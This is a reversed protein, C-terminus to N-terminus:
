GGALAAKAPMEEAQSALFVMFAMTEEENELDLARFRQVIKRCKLAHQQEAPAKVPVQKKQEIMDLVEQARQLVEPSLGAKRACELGFSKSACGPVLQYLYAISSACEFESDQPLVRLHSVQLHEEEESVLGLRFIETFHTAVLVKPGQRWRCFHEIAAGLLAVGDAARTGQGFEDLLVLSSRTAHKLALSLQSLDLAFSSIQATATECSQIRSFIFDCLGLQAEEAPVFSGIHALYTILGVQKLYVSKGSLNAGTIVQVRYSRKEELGLETSNAVFGHAAKPATAEVLPHRGKVIHLRGADEVLKPRVWNWQLAAAAFAMLVDVEALLESASRLRSELARLRELLQMLIELEVGRADVVLDGVECDLRRALDCKYFLRGYGAFQFHWDEAPLPVADRLADLSEEGTPNPLSAHFGLQPFYHFVISESRNKLRRRELGAMKSLHPELQAYQRRLDDLKPDIGSQVHVLSADLDGEAPSPRREWDVVRQLVREAASIDGMLGKGATFAAVPQDCLRSAKQLIELATSMHGLSTVLSRWDVMNDFNYCRHMRSLLKPLEQTMRLERHLQRVLEAGSGQLLAVLQQVGEQRQELLERRRSPQRLWRRLQKQGGTSAVLPELLSYVSLGKNSVRMLLNQQEQFVQLAMMTQADIFVTDDPSFLRIDQVSPGHNQLEGLLAGNQELFRLLGGGARLMQENDNLAAFLSRPNHNGGQALSQWVEGLRRRAGEAGFDSAAAPAAGPASGKGTAVNFAESKPASPARRRSPSTQCLMEEPPEKRVEPCGRSNSGSVEKEARPFGGSGRGSGRGTRWSEDSPRPRVSARDVHQFEPDTVESLWLTRRPADLDVYALGLPTSGRTTCLAFLVSVAEMQEDVTSRGGGLASLPDCSGLGLLIMSCCGIRLADAKERLEVLITQERAGNRLEHTARGAQNKAIHKLTPEPVDLAVYNKKDTVCPNVAHHQTLLGCTTLALKEETGPGFNQWYEGFVGHSDAPNLEGVTFGRKAACVAIAHMDQDMLLVPVNGEYGEGFVKEYFDYTDNEYFIPLSLVVLCIHKFTEEELVKRVAMASLQRVSHGIGIADGAFVGLGLGVEVVVRIGLDDQARLRLRCMKKMDFLTKTVNLQATKGSLEFDRGHKVSPYGDEDFIYVEKWNKIYHTLDVHDHVRSAFDIGCVSVLWIRTLVEDQVERPIVRGDFRMIVPNNSCRIAFKMKWAEEGAESKGQLSQSVLDKGEEGQYIDAAYYTRFSSQWQKVEKVSAKFSCPLGDQGVGKYVLEKEEPQEHLPTPLEFAKVGQVFYKHALPKMGVEDMMFDEMALTQPICKGGMTRKDMEPLTKLQQMLEELERTPSSVGLFLRCRPPAGQEVPPLAMHEPFDEPPEVESLDWDKEQFKLLEEVLWSPDTRSPLSLEDLDDIFGAASFLWDCGRTAILSKGPEENCSLTRARVDWPAQVIKQLVSLMSELAKRREAEPVACLERLGVLAEVQFRLGNSLDKVTRCFAAQGSGDSFLWRVFEGYQIKGDRNADAHPTAWRDATPDAKPAGREPGFAGSTPAVGAAAVSRPEIRAERLIQDLREDTWTLDDLAELVRGLEQGILFCRKLGRHLTRDLQRFLEILREGTAM